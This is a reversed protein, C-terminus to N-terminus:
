IGGLRRAGGFKEVVRQIGAALLGILVPASLAVAVYLWSAQFPEGPGATSASISALWQLYTQM